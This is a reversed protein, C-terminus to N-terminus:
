FRLALLVTDKKTWLRAGKRLLIYLRFIAKLIDKKEEKRRIQSYYSRFSKKLLDFFYACYRQCSHLLILRNIKLCCLLGHAQNFMKTASFFRM